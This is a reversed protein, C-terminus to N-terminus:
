KSKFEGSHAFEIEIPVGDVSNAFRLRIAGDSFEYQKANAKEGGIMVATPENRSAIRVVSQTDAIGEARFRLTDSSLEADSIRSAAVAIVPQASEIRDLDFLLSRKGPSLTVSTLVPLDADFL